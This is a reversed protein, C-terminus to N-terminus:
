QKNGKFTLKDKNHEITIQLDRIADAAQPSTQELKDAYRLILDRQLNIHKYHKALTMWFSHEVCRTFYCFCKDAYDKKFNKINKICKLLAESEMDEQM